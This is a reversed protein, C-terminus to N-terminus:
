SLVEFPSVEIGSLLVYFLIYLQRYKKGNKGKELKFKLVRVAKFFRNGDRDKDLAFNLIVVTEVRIVAM